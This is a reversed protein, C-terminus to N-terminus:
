QVWASPSLESTLGLSNCSM